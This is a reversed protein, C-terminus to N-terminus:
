RDRNVRDADGRESMIEERYIPYDLPAAIGLRARGGGMEVLEITIRRGEPTPIILREGPKRTLYLVSPRRRKAASM